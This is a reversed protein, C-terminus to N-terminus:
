RGLITRAFPPEWTALREDQPVQVLVGRGVDGIVQRLLAVGIPCLERLWLSRADDDPLVHCWAQAAVPGSQPRDDVWYVTGGTVAERKYVAWKVPDSGRHRPLLSPHYAIAGLKARELAEAPVYVHAGALVILEVDAAITAPSVHGGLSHADIGLPAAACLLGDGVPAVASVIDHGDSRLSRLVALGLQGAGVIALRM